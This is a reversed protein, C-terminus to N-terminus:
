SLRKYFVTELLQYGSRAYFAAVEPSEAPAVMKLLSLGKQGAWVEYAKLLKPGVLGGRHEPEVWWAIEDCVWANGHLPDQFPMAAIMGVIQRDVEALLIIGAGKIFATALDGIARPDPKLWRGYQTSAIFRAALGIIRPVDELQAKRVTAM